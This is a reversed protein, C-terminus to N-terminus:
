HKQKGLVETDMNYSPQSPEPCQNDWGGCCHDGPYLGSCPSFMKNNRSERTSYHGIGQEGSGLAAGQGEQYVLAKQLGPQAWTRHTNEVKTVM